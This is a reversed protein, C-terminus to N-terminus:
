FSVKHCVDVSGLKGAQRVLGVNPVYPLLWLGVDLALWGWNALSPDEQLQQLDLVLGGIDLLWDIPLGLHGSPDTYHTPANYVYAFRNWAAPNLPGAM